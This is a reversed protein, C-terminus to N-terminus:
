LKRVPDIGDWGLAAKFAETFMQEVPPVMEILEVMGHLDRSTDLYAGRSELDEARASWAVEYGRDMFRALDRDFDDTAIAWHHFGVRRDGLLESYVSPVDDHQKILEIQTHGSYAIAVTLDLDVPEGRYVTHGLDMHEFVSWPGVGLLEVHDALAQDLDDVVFAHQIIGGLPQGFNLVPM